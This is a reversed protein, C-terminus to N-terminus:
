CSVAARPRFDAELMVGSELPTAQVVWGTERACVGVPACWRLSLSVVMDAAFGMVPSWSATYGAWCCGTLDGSPRAPESRSGVTRRV